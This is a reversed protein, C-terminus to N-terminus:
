WLTLWYDDEEESCIFGCQDNLCQQILLRANTHYFTALEEGRVGCHPCTFPQDNMLFRQLPKIFYFDM